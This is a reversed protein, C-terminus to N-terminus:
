LDNEKDIKHSLLVYCAMWLGAQIDEATHSARNSGSKIERDLCAHFM